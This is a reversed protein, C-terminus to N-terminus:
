EIQLKVHEFLPVVVRFRTLQRRAAGREAGHRRARSRWARASRRRPTRALAAGGPAVRRGLGCVKGLGVRVGRHEFGADRWAGARCGRRVVAPRGGCLGATRAHSEERTRRVM